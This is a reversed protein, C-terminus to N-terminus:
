IIDNWDDFNSMKKTRGPNIKTTTVTTSVHHMRNSRQSQQSTRAPAQGTFRFRQAFNSSRALSRVTQASRRIHKPTHTDDFGFDSRSGLSHLADRANATISRSHSELRSRSRSNSRMLLHLKSRSTSRSRSVSRSRSPTRSRSRKLHSRAKRAEMERISSLSTRKARKKTPHMNQFTFQQHSMNRPRTNSSRSSQALRQGVQVRRATNAFFKKSQVSHRSTSSSGSPRTHVSRIKQSVVDGMKSQDNRQTTTLKLIRSRLSKPKEPEFNQEGEETIVDDDSLFVLPEATNSAQQKKLGIWGYNPSYIHILLYIQTIDLFKLLITAPVEYILWINENQVIFFLAAMNTIYHIISTTALLRMRYIVCQPIACFEEDEDHYTDTIFYYIADIRKQMYYFIYCALFTSGLILIRVTLKVADNIMSSEFQNFFMNYMVGSLFMILVTHIGLMVTQTAKRFKRVSIYYLKMWLSVFVCYLQFYVMFSILLNAYHNNGFGFITFESHRIIKSETQSDVSNINLIFDWDLWVLSMSSAVCFLIFYIIVQKPMQVHHRNIHLQFKPYSRVATITLFLFLISFLCFSMLGCVYEWSQYYQPEVPVYAGVTIPALVKCTCEVITLTNYNSTSTLSCGTDIWKLQSSDYWVCMLSQDTKLQQYGTADFKVIVNTQQLHVPTIDNIQDNTSETSDPDIIKVIIQTNPLVLISDDSNISPYLCTQFLSYDNAIAQNQQLQLQINGTSTSKLESFGSIRASSQYGSSQIEINSDIDTVSFSTLAFSLSQDHSTLSRKEQYVMSSGFLNQYTNAIKQIQTVITCETSDTTIEDINIEGNTISTTLFQITLSATKAVATALTKMNNGDNCILKSTTTNAADLKVINYIQDLYTSISQTDTQIDILSLLSVIFTTGLECTRPHVSQKLIITDLLSKLQATCSSSQSNLNTQSFFYTIMPVVAYSLQNSNSVINSLFSAMNCSESNAGPEGSFMVLDKCNQSYKDNRVCVRIIVENAPLTINRLNAKFGIYLPQFINSFYGSDTTTQYYWGIQRNHNNATSEIDTFEMSVDFTSSLATGSNPSISVLTVVPSFEIFVQCWAFTESTSSTVHFVFVYFKGAQLSQSDIVLNYSQNGDNSFVTIDEWNVLHILATDDLNKLSEIKAFDFVQIHDYEFINWQYQYSEQQISEIFETEEPGYIILEEETGYTQFNSYVSVSYFTKPSIPNNAVTIVLTSENVARQTEQHTIYVTFKYTAGATMTIARFFLVPDSFSGGALIDCQNVNGFIIECQWDFTLHNVNNEPWDPDVTGSADLVIIETSLSTLHVIKNGGKLASRLQSNEIQITCSDTSISTATTLTVSNIYTLTVSASIIYSNNATLLSNKQILLNDNQTNEQLTILESDPTELTYTINYFYVNNSCENQTTDYNSYIWLKLLLDQSQIWKTPCNSNLDIMPFIKNDLVTVQKTVTTPISSLKTIKLSVTHTGASLQSRPVTLKESTLTINQLNIGSTASWLYEVDDSFGLSVSGKADLVLDACQGITTAGAIIITAGIPEDPLDVFFTYSSSLTFSSQDTEVATTVFSGPYLVISSGLSSIQSEKALVVWLQKLWTQLYCTSGLLLTSFDDTFLRECLQSASFTMGTDTLVVPANFQVIIMGYDNSFKASEINVTAFYTYRKQVFFIQTESKNAAFNVILVRGSTAAFPTPLYVLLWAVLNLLSTNM